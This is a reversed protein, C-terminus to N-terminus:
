PELTSSLSPYLPLTPRAHHISLPTPTPYWAAKVGGLGFLALGFVRSWYLDLFKQSGNLEFFGFEFIKPSPWFKQRDLRPRLEAFKAGGSKSNM